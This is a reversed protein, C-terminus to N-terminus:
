QQQTSKFKNNTKETPTKEQKQQQQEQQEQQKQQQEQQQEQQEQQKKNISSLQLHTLSERLDQVNKKGKYKYPCSLITKSAQM